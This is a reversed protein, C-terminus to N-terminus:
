IVCNDVSSCSVCFVFDNYINLYVNVQNNRGCKYCKKCFLHRSTTEKFILPPAQCDHFHKRLAYLLEIKKMKYYNKVKITKALSLMARYKLSYLIILNLLACPVEEDFLEPPEEHEIYEYM